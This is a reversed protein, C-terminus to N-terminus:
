TSAPSWRSLQNASVPGIWRRSPPSSPTRGASRAASPSTMEQESDHTLTDSTNVLSTPTDARHSMVPPHPGLHMMHCLELHEVSTLSTDIISRPDSCNSIVSNIQTSPSSGMRWGWGTRTSGPGASRVLTRSQVPVCGRGCACECVCFCARGRRTRRDALVRRQGQLGDCLVASDDRSGDEVLVDVDLVASLARQATDLEVLAPRYGRGDLHSRPRNISREEERRGDELTHGRRGLHRLIIVDSHGCTIPPAHGTHLHTHNSVNIM